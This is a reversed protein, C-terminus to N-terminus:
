AVPAMFPDATIIKFARQTIDTEPPTILRRFRNEEVTSRRTERGRLAHNAYETVANFAGWVTGRIPNLNDSGYYISRIDGRASEAVTRGRGEKEKGDKDTTPVLSNLFAAFEDDSISTDAMRNAQEAFAEDHKIAYNLTKRADELRFRAQSHKTHKVQWRLPAASLAMMLMNQCEVRMKSPIVTTPLSGDFSTVVVLYSQTTDDAITITQPLKLVAFVQKGGNLTASAEILADSQDIVDDVFRFCDLAQHVQYESGVTGLPSPPIYFGDGGSSNPLIIGERVTGVKDDFVVVTGDPLTATLPVKIVRAGLEPVYTPLEDVKIRKQIVTGLNHWAPTFSYVGNEVAPPM